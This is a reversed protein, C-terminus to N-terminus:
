CFRAFSKGLFFHLKKGGRYVAATSKEAPHDDKGRQSAKKELLLVKRRLLSKSKKETSGITKWHGKEEQPGTLFDKEFPFVTKRREEKEKKGTCCPTVTGGRNYPGKEERPRCRCKGGGRLPPLEEERASV